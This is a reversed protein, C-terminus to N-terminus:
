KFIIVPFFCGLIFSWRKRFTHIHSNPHNTGRILEIYSTRLSFCFKRFFLTTVALDENKTTSGNQVEWEIQRLMLKQCLIQYSFTPHEIKTSEVLFCYYMKQFLTQTKWFIRKLIQINVVNLIEMPKWM